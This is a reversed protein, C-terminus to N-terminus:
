LLALSHFDPFHGPSPLWIKCTSSITRVRNHMPAPVPGAPVAAAPGINLGFNHIENYAIETTSVLFYNLAYSLYPARSHVLHHVHPTHPMERHSIAAASTM